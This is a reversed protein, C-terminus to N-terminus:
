KDPAWKDPAWREPAWKAPEGTPREEWVIELLPIEPKFWPTVTVPGAPAEWDPPTVTIVVLGTVEEDAEPVWTM